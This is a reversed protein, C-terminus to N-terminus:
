IVIFYMQNYCLRMSVVTVDIYPPMHVPEGYTQVAIVLEYVRNVM